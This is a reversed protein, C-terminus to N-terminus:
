EIDTGALEEQIEQNNEITSQSEAIAEQDFSIPGVNVIVKRSPSYIVAKVAKPFIFLVDGNQANNFFLQDKVLSDIDSITFILPEEEPVIFLGSLDKLIEETEKQTKLEPSINKRQYLFLIFGVLLLCSSIIIIIKKRKSSKRNNKKKTLTTNFDGYDKIKNM